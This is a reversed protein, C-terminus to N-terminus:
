AGKAENILRVVRNVIQQRTIPPWGARELKAFKNECELVAAMLEILAANGFNRKQEETNLNM